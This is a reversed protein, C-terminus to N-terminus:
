GLHIGPCLILLALLICVVSLVQSYYLFETIKIAISDHLCAIHWIVFKVRSSPPLPKKNIESMRKLTSINVNISLDDLFWYTPMDFLFVFDINELFNDM